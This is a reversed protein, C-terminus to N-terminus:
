KATYERVQRDHEMSVRAAKAITPTIKGAFGYKSKIYAAIEARTPGSTSSGGNGAGRKGNGAARKPAAGGKPARKVKSAAAARNDLKEAVAPKVVRAVQLPGDPTDIMRQVLRQKGVFWVGKAADYHPLAEVEDQSVSIGSKPQGPVNNAASELPSRTGTCFGTLPNVVDVLKNGSRDRHRLGTNPDARYSLDREFRLQARTIVIEEPM